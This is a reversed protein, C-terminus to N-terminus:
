GRSQSRAIEKWWSRWDGHRRRRRYEQLFRACDSRTARGQGTVIRALRALDAAAWQDKVRRVYRLGDLDVLFPEGRGDFLINGEKLDRHTFGANHLRAILRALSHIARRQDGRWAFLSAAQPIEAMLLYSRLPVGCCRQEAFALVRATPIGATELHIARFFCRRAKSGRFLDKFLNRSKRFNYRKLVLGDQASVASSRSPKLVRARTLFEDPASLITQAQDLAPRRVHWRLGGRSEIALEDSQLGGLKDAPGPILERRLEHPSLRPNRSRCYETLFWHHERVTAPTRILAHRLDELAMELSVRACPQIGDLDILVMEARSPSALRIMFNTRVPDAHTYGANHLAAFMRGFARIVPVRHAGEPFQNDHDYWPRFGTVEEMILCTAELHRGFRKEGAALHRATPIGAQGLRQALKFARIARSPRFWDKAYQRVGRPTSHKVILPFPHERLQIRSVRTNPSPPIREIIGAPPLLLKEPTTLWARFEPGTWRPELEWRWSGIVLSEGADASSKGTTDAGFTPSNAPTM